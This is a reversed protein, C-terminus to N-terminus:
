RGDEPLPLSLGDIDRVPLILPDFAQLCRLNVAWGNFVPKGSHVAEQPTAKRPRRFPLIGCTKCFYDKATGTGWEYLALDTLPTQLDFQDEEVRFILAGRQYCVSCNCIRAHDIDAIIRFRTRGCHCAGQWVRSADHGTATM